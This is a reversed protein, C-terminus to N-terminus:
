PSNVSAPLTPTRRVKAPGCARFAKYEIRICFRHVAPNRFSNCSLYAAKPALGWAVGMFPSRRDDSRTGPRHFRFGSCRRLKRMALSALIMELARHLPLTADSTDATDQSKRDESQKRPRASRRPSLRSPVRISSAKTVYTLNLFSLDNHTEHLSCAM